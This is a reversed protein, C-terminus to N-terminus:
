GPGKKRRSYAYWGIAAIVIILVVAVIALQRGTLGLITIALLSQM